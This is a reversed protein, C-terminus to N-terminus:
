QKQAPSDSSTRTPEVRQGRAPQALGVRHGDVLVDGFALPLLDHEMRSVDPSCQLHLHIHPETSDGSNGCLGLVQGRSVRQGPRVRLSGPRFHALVSWEGHGHDIVVLNPAGRADGRGPPADPQGDVIRCVVGDAPALVEAGYAEYDELCDGGGRYPRVFDYAHPHLNAAPDPGGNCVIWAGTCPLSFRTRQRSGRLARGQKGGAAASAFARLTAPHFIPM